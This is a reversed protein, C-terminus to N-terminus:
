DSEGPAMDDELFFKSACLAAATRNEVCLTGYITTLHKKITNTALCTKSLIFSSSSVWCTVLSM